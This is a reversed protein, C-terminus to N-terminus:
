ILSAVGLIFPSKHIANQKWVATRFSGYVYLMEKLPKGTM